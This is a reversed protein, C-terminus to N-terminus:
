WFYALVLLGFGIRYWAFPRFTHRAVYVLFTKVVVLATLFAMVFGAAFLLTDEAHLLQRSRFLDYLTAAFMTPMALFFSFETAATRSLGLFLGGMITAGSRSVGPFLSLTQALGVKLADLRTIEGLAHVRAGRHRHRREILLIAFGGAILAGAVTLPNFLHAKIYKHALLGLAAAPLFAIFLNLVFRREPARDLGGALDLLRARYFWAVGLIAGLQISIEFTKAREGTFGIADGVVILHGTSSVPLFETLGEVVGLILAQILLILDM